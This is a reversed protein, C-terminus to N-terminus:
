VASNLLSRCRDHAIPHYNKMAALGDGDAEACAAKEEWPAALASFARAWEEREVSKLAQIVPAVEECITHLFPNRMEKARPLLEEKVEDIARPGFHSASSTMPNKGGASCRDRM